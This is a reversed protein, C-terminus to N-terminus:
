QLRPRYFRQGPTAAPDTFLQSGTLNTVTALPTWAALDPSTLIQIGLGPPSIITFRFEHDGLSAPASLQLSKQPLYNVGTGHGQMVGIDVMVASLPTTDLWNQALDVYYLGTLNTLSHIVQLNNNYLYLWRLGAFGSLGSVDTLLNNQLDLSGLNPLGSLGAISTLRNDRFGLWNINAMGSLGSINTLQNDWFDLWTLNPLGLLPPLTTLRNQASSLYNLLHLNTVPSLDTIENASIDLGWQLNTMGALPAISQVHNSQMTLWIMGRLNALPSINTFGNGSLSLWGINTLGALPSLDHVRNWSLYLSNLNTKSTLLSVNTVQNQELGLFYLQKINSLPSLDSAGNLEYGLYNLKALAAVPALSGHHNGGAYLSTLNTLGSIPSLNTAAVYSADLYLLPTHGLLPTLNTVQSYNIALEVLGSLNTIFSLSDFPNGSAWLSTLNTFAAVIPVNTAENWSLSLWTLDKGTLPSINSIWNKNQDYQWDGGVDLSQLHTMGATFTINSLCDSHLNLSDLNTLVALRPIALLCGNNNLNLGHLNAALNEMPPVSHIQNGSLNLWYLQSLGSVFSADQLGCTDLNLDSLSVVWSLPSPDAIPNRSLDVSQLNRACELGALNTIGQGSVWLYTLSDLNALTIPDGPNLSLAQHVLNNLTPDAFTVQEVVRLEALESYKIAGSDDSVRVRYFGAENTTVDPVDLHADTAGTLDTGNHQWQYFLNTNSTNATVEFSVLEGPAACQNRPQQLITIPNGCGPDDVFLAAEESSSRGSDDMLLCRYHGIDAVTLNTVILTDSTQDVLDRGNHQWQYDLFWGTTSAGVTFTAQQGSVLCLSLPQNTITITATRSQPVYDVSTNFQLQQIVLMAPTTPSSIDLLNDRLDVYNFSHPAMLPDINVLTNNAVHLDNLGTQALVPSLDTIFNDNAALRWLHFAPLPLLDYLNLGNIELSGLNPLSSLVSWDGVPNQSINIWGLNVLATLPSVDSVGSAELGLETLNTLGTLLSADHFNNGGIYLRQLHLLNTVLSANTANNYTASLYTLDRGLLPSFDHVDNYAVDCERLQTMASVVGINTLGDAALNLTQLSTLGSLVSTNTARYLFGANLNTLGTLGALPALDPTNIYFISLERLHTFAPLWTINTLALNWDSADRNGGIDLVVMNTLGALSTGDLIHNWSCRLSTLNTLAPIPALTTLQNGSVDLQRLNTATELGSLNTIGRWGAYLNTLTLMNSVTIPTPSSISLTSRVADELVPDPFTVTQASAPLISGLLWAMTVSLFAKRLLHLHVRKM